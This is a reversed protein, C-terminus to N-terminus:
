VKQDVLQGAIAMLLPIYYCHDRANRLMCFSKQLVTLPVHIIDNIDTM